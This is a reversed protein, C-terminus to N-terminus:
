ARRDFEAQWRRAMEEDGQQILSQLPVGAYEPLMEATADSNNELLRHHAGGIQAKCEPCTSTVMARGCDAICYLHSRKDLVAWDLNSINSSHDEACEAEERDK